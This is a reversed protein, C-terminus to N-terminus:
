CGLSHLCLDPKHGTAASVAPTLSLGPRAISSMPLEMKATGSPMETIRWLTSAMQKALVTDVAGPAAELAAAGAGVEPRVGVEPGAAPSVPSLLPPAVQLLVSLFSTSRDSAGLNM